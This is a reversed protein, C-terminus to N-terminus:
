TRFISRNRGQEKSDYLAQDAKHLLMDLNAMSDDYKGIGGSITIKLVEGQDSLISLKEVAIRITEIVEMAKDDDGSSILVAFEEGGIRGLLAKEKLIDTMVDAVGKIVKDGTPHGYTDNIRKFKDIDMMFAYLGEPQSEFMNEGVEFFKRRNFIGTLQDYYSLFELNQILNQIKLHTKVRSILERPKFPKTVFDVGGAEYAEEITDEDTKATIFIVPINKTKINEKLKRCVEIGNMEPMLIDLLILDVENRLALSIAKEGNLAVLPDYDDLLGLLIDINERSDDVILINKDEIM